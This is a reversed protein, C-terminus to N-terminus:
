SSNDLDFAGSGLLIMEIEATIEGQRLSRARIQMEALREDLRHMAGGLHQVRYRNEVLLSATLLKILGLFLYHQLFDHFFVDPELYLHPPLAQRKCDSRYEPPLLRRVLVTDSADDHCMVRLGQAQHRSLQKQVEVVIESLRVSLEEGTSAGATMEYGEMEEGLHHFLKGGVILVSCPESGNDRMKILESVLMENFPGCFGRESGLVLLLEPGNGPEALPYFNLFDAIVTDLVKLMERQQEAQTALKRLELQALTRMSSIIAQLEQLQKLHSVIKRFRSM